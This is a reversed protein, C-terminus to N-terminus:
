RNPNITQIGWDGCLSGGYNVPNELWVVSTFLSAIVGAYKDGPYTFSRSREYYEATHGVACNKGTQTDYIYGNGTNGTGLFFSPYTTSTYNGISKEYHIPDPPQAVIVTHSLVKATQAQLAPVSALFAFASLFLPRSLHKM